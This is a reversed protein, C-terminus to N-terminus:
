KTTNNIKNSESINHFNEINGSLEKNILFQRSWTIRKKPKGYCFKHWNKIM